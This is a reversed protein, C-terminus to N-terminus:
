VSMRLIEQYAEVVRDRVAVTVQVASEMAMTAEVVQQVPLAGTLGALAARDGQRVTEVTDAATRALVESFTPGQPAAVPATPAVPIAKAAQYARQVGGALIGQTLETM